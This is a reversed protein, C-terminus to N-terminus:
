KKMERKKAIKEKADITIITRKKILEVIFFDMFGNILFLGEYPTLGEHLELFDRSEKLTSEVMRKVKGEMIQDYHDREWDNM